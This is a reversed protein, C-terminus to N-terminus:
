LNKAYTKKIIVQRINTRQIRYLVIHINFLLYVTSYGKQHQPITSTFYVEQQTKTYRKITSPNEM